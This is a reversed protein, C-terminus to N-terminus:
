RRSPRIFLQSAIREVDIDNLCREQNGGKKLSLTFHFLQYLLILPSKFHTSTASLPSVVDPIGLFSELEFGEISTGIYTARHQILQNTLKDTGNVM